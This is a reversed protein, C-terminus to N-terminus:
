FRTRLNRPISNQSTQLVNTIVESLESKSRFFQNIAIMDMVKGKQIQQIFVM